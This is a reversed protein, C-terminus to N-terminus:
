TELRAASITGNAVTGTVTIKTGVALGSFAMRRKSNALYVTTPSTVVIFTGCVFAGKCPPNAHFSCGLGPAVVTLPSHIPKGTSVYRPPGPFTPAIQVSFAMITAAGHEVGTVSAYELHGAMEAKRLQALTMKSNSPGVMVLAPTVLVDYTTGFVLKGATGNVCPISGSRARFSATGVSLVKGIFSVSSGNGAAATSTSQAAACGDSVAIAVLVTTAGVFM